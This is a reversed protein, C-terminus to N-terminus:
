YSVRERIILTAFSSHSLKRIRRGEVNGNQTVSDLICNICVTVVCDQKSIPTWGKIWKRKQCLAVAM